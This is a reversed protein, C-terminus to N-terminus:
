LAIRGSWIRDSLEAYRDSRADIFPALIDIAGM